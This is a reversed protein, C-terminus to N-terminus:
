QVTGSHRKILELLLFPDYKDKPIRLECAARNRLALTLIVADPDADIHAEVAFRLGPDGHLQDIVKEIRVDAPTMPDTATDGAGVIALPATQREKPNAVAVKAIRAIRQDNGTSDSAPIASIAPIATALEGTDRKRILARLTM